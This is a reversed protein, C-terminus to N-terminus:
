LGDEEDEAVVPGVIVVDFAGNMLPMGPIGLADGRTGGDASKGDCGAIYWPYGFIKETGGGCPNPGLLALAPGGHESPGAVDGAM